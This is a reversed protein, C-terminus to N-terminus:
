GMWALVARTGEFANGREKSIERDCVEEILQEALAPSELAPKAVLPEAGQPRDAPTEGWGKPELALRYQTKQRTGNM